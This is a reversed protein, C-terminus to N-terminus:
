EPRDPRYGPARLGSGPAYRGSGPARREAMALNRQADAFGPRLKLAQQFEDIAEALKGQSALTVGLNNHVEASDPMLREAARFEELADDYRRSELLVTALHYRTEGDRPNLEVSRRLHPLAEDPATLTRGLLKHLEASEPIVAGLYASGAILRPGSESQTPAPAPPMADASPRYALALLSLYTDLGDVLPVPQGKAFCKPCWAAIQSLDVISAPPGGGFNLLSRASYEQIPRDDTAPAAGRTADDLTRASAVFTGVIERVSGLDLRQLDAQV